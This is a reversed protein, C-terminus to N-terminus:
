RSMKAMSMAFDEGEVVWLGLDHRINLYHVFLDLVAVLVPRLLLVVVGVEVEFREEAAGALLLAVAFVGVGGLVTFAVFIGKYKLEKDQKRSHM